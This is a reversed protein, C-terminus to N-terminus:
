CRELDGSVPRGAVLTLRPWGTLEMGEYPTTKDRSALQAVDVRRTADLDVLVLDASRGPALSGADSLGLIRAPGEACRHLVTALDFWGRHVLSLMSPLLLDASSVGAPVDAFPRSKAAAPQPTHGSAVVDIVGLRVAEILRNRDLPSKLSPECKLRPGLRAVDTEDFWLYHPATSATVRLGETKAEEILDVAGATSLELFHAALDIRRVLELVREVAVVEAAAPRARSYAAAGGAAHCRSASRVLADDEARVVVLADVAAAEELAIRLSEADRIAFEEPGALGVALAQTFPALERLKGLNRPCVTGLLGVNVVSRRAAKERKRALAEVSDAYPVDLQLDIVTTAGGAASARSGTAFGERATPGGEGYSVHGDVLGAIALCGRGDLAGHAPAENPAIAVIEGAEIVIDAMELTGGGRLIRVNTIAVPKSSM